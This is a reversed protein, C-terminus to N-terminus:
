RVVASVFKGRGICSKFGSFKSNDSLGHSSFGGTILSVSKPIALYMSPSNCIFGEPPLPLSLGYSLIVAILQACILRTGLAGRLFSVSSSQSRSKACIDQSHATVAFKCKGVSLVKLMRVLLLQSTLKTAKLFRWPFTKLIKPLFRPFYFYYHFSACDNSPYFLQTLRVHMTQSWARQM